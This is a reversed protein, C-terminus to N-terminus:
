LVPDIEMLSCRLIIYSLIIIYSCHIYHRVTDSSMRESISRYMRDSGAYEVSYHTVYGGGARLVAVAEVVVEAGFDVEIFKRETSDCTLYDSCWGIGSVRAESPLHPQIFSTANIYRDLGSSILLTELLEVRNV